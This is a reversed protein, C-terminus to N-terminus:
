FDTELILKGNERNGPNRAHICLLDPALEFSEASVAFGSYYQPNIKFNGLPEKSLIGCSPTQTFDPRGIV